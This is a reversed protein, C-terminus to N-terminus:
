FISNVLGDEAGGRVKHHTLTTDLCELVGRKWLGCQHHSLGTSQHSLTPFRVKVNWPKTKMTPGPHATKPARGKTCNPTQRQVARATTRWPGQVPAAPLTASVM